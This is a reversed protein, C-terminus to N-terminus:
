KFLREKEMRRLTQETTEGSKMEYSCGITGGKWSGTREGVEGDFSVDLTTTDIKPGIKLKKFIRWYWVRRTVSVTATRNQIEGSSLKYTYPFSEKKIVLDDLEWGLSDIWKGNKAILKSEVCSGYDWPMYIIKYFGGEPGMNFGSGYRWLLHVSREFSTFGYEWGQIDAFSYFLRFWLFDIHIKTINKGILKLKLSLPNKFPNKNMVFHYSHGADNNWNRFNYYTNEIEHKSSRLNQPKDRWGTFLKM